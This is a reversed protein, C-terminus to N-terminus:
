QTIDNEDRANIEYNSWSYVVVGIIESYTDGTSAPFQYLKIMGEGSGDDVMFEHYSNPEETVTVDEVSVFVGEWKEQSIDDTSILEPGPITHGNDIFDVSQVVVETFEFFENVYGSVVVSDGREMDEMIGDYGFLIVGSWEGGQPDMISAFDGVSTYLEGSESTVIGTVTVDEGNYPSEDAQGQIEYCTLANGSGGGSSDPTTITAENSWATLQSSDVTQLAYYYPTNWDLGTDDHTLTASNSITAILTASSPSSAIGATTSRYINYSAFDEDPCQSWSLSATNQDVAATLTSATPNTGGEQPNSEDDGCAFVLLFAMLIATIVTYRLAVKEGRSYQNQKM